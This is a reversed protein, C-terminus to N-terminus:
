KKQVSPQEHHWLLDRMLIDPDLSIWHIVTPPISVLSGGKVCVCKNDVFVKGSGGLVFFWYM